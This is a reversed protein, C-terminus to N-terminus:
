KVMLLHSRFSWSYQIRVLIKVLDLHLVFLYSTLLCSFESNVM